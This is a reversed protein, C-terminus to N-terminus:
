SISSSACLDFCESYADEGAGTFFCHEACMAKDTDFAPGNAIRGDPAVSM